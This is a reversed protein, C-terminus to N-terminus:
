WVTKIYILKYLSYLQWIFGFHQARFYLSTSILLKFYGTFTDGFTCYSLIHILPVCVCVCPCIHLTWNQMPPFLSWGSAPFCVWGWKLTWVSTEVALQREEGKERRVFIFLYFFFYYFWVKIKGKAKNTQSFCMPISLGSDIVQCVGQFWVNSIVAISWQHTM